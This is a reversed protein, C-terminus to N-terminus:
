QNLSFYNRFLHTRLTIFSHEFYKSHFARDIISTAHFTLHKSTDCYFNHSQTHPFPQLSVKKFHKTQVQNHFKRYKKKYILSCKLMFDMFYQCSIKAFQSKCVKLNSCKSVVFFPFSFNTFSYNQNQYINLCYIAM